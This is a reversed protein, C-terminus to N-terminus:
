RNLYCNLFLCSLCPCSPVISVIFVRDRPCNSVLRPCSAVSSPDYDTYALLVSMARTAQLADLVGQLHCGSASVHRPLIQFVIFGVLEKVCRNTMECRYLLIIPGVILLYIYISKYM